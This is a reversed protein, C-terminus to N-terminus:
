CSHNLREREVREILVIARYSFRISFDYFGLFQCIDALLIYLDVRTLPPTM